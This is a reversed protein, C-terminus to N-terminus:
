GPRASDQLRRRLGARRANSNYWWWRAPVHNPPKPNRQNHPGISDHYRTNTVRQWQGRISDILDNSKPISDAM